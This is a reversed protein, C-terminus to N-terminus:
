QSDTLTLVTKLQEQALEYRALADAITVNKAALERIKTEEAMKKHCWDLASIAAGTLSVEASTGFSLWSNGDFVEFHSGNMRTMGILPNNANPSVYPNSNSGSVNLYGGTNSYINNIM